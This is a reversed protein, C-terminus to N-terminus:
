PWACCRARRRWPIPPSGISSAGRSRPCRRRTSSPSRGAEAEGGRGRGDGAGWVVGITERRGLPVVVFDGPALTTASAYDYRRALRCVAVPRPDSALSDRGDAVSRVRDSCQNASCYTSCHLEEDIGGVDGLNAVEGGGPQDVADGGIRRQDGLAPPLNRSTTLSIQADNRARDAGLHGGGVM